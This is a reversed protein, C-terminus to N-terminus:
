NHDELITPKEVESEEEVIPLAIRTEEVPVYHFFQKLKLQSCSELIVM